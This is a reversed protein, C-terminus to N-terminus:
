FTLNSFNEIFKMGILGSKEPHFQVAIINKQICIANIATDTIKGFIINKDKPM